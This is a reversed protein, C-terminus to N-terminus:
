RQSEILENSCYKLYRITSISNKRNFKLQANWDKETKPLFDKIKVYPFKESVSKKINDMAEFGGADTDCALILNILNPNESLINLVAEWKGTGSLAVYDYSNIVRDCDQMISMISMSDIVGENVILTESGNNIFFCHKYDSGPVDQLFRNKKLSNTGRKNCFKAIGQRDYSVFVCNNHTDQYLNNNYIFNDVIDRNICRTETLYAYVNKITDAREPLVLEAHRNDDRKLPTNRSAASLILNCTDILPRLTNIADKESCNDLEMVFDIISHWRNERAYRCYRNTLPNIMVSSFDSTGRKGEIGFFSGKKVITFGRSAAYDQIPIKERIQKCIISNQNKSYYNKKSM